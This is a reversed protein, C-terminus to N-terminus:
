NFVKENNWKYGIGRITKIPNIGYPSFKVRIQYVYESISRFLADSEEDYVRKYIEERTYVKNKKSALLDLIDYERCTLSIVEGNICVIKEQLYFTIPLLERVVNENSKSNRHREERKLNAAVKAVLQNISFPKTIYDDGGLNLGLVIDDESDKASVFIVPSSVSERIQKCIQLGDIEPMMVDLLILDFGKFDSMEIPLRVEQYTTVNYNKMELITRMLKLIEFDDDIVLIKYM